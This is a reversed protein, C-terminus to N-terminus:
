KVKLRFAKIAHIVKIYPAPSEGIMHSYVDLKLGRIYDMYQHYIKAKQMEYNLIRDKFSEFVKHRVDINVYLKEINSILNKRVLKCKAEEIKEMFEAKMLTILSQENSRIIELEMETIPALRTSVGEQSSISSMLRSRRLPRSPSEREALILLYLGIADHRALGAPTFVRVRRFEDEGGGSSVRGEQQGPTGPTFIQAFITGISDRIPECIAGSLLESAPPDPKDPTVYQTSCYHKYLQESPLQGVNSPPHRQRPQGSSFM